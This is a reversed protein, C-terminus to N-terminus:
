LGLLVKGKPSIEASDGCSKWFKEHSNLNDRFKEPKQCCTKNRTDCEVSFRSLLLGSGDTIVKGNECHEYQM